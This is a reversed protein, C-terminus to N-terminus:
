QPEPSAVQVQKAVQALLRALEELMPQAGPTTMGHIGTSYRIYYPAAHLHALRQLWDPPVPSVALGEEVAMGWLAALDHRVSRHRLRSDDGTRSLFAKLACETAQASVFALAIATASDSKGLAQAGILFHRAMGLYTHPPGPPLISVNELTISGSVVAPPNNM